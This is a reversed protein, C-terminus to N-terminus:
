CLKGCRLGNKNLWNIRERNSLALRRRAAKGPPAFVAQGMLEADLFRLLSTGVRLRGL